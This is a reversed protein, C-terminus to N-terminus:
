LLHICEKRQKGTFHVSIRIEMVREHDGPNIVETEELNFKERNEFEELDEILQEENYNEQEDNNAEGQKILEQFSM